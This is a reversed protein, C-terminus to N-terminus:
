PCLQLPSCLAPRYPMQQVQLMIQYLSFPSRVVDMWDELESEPMFTHSSLWEATQQARTAAAEVVRERIAVISPVNDM